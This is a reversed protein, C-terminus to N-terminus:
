PIFPSREPPRVPDRTPPRKTSLRPATTQAPAVISPEFPDLIASPESGAAAYVAQVTIAGVVVAALAVWRWGSKTLGTM